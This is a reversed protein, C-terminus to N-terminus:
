RPLPIRLLPPAQGEGSVYLASEDASIAGAETQRLPPLTIAQPQAAFAQPWDQGPARRYLFANKYTTIVAFAGSAAIDLATPGSFQSYLPNELLDGLGPTPLTTLTGLAEAVVPGGIPPQEPLRLRYLHQPRDRKSILIVSHERPDVAVAECDRAGDPYRFDLKWLLKPEGARGPDSIVYLTVTERRATNDGTDAVLLAPQGQWDFAAIDEWDVARAGAVAIRGDDEGNVGIRFLNPGDGSDNHGWLLTPEAHAIALGSLEDLAPNRVRAGDPQSLLACSNLLLAAGLVAHLWWRPRTM